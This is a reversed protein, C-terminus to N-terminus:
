TQSLQSFDLPSSADDCLQSLLGPWAYRSCQGLDVLTAYTSVLFHGLDTKCILLNVRCPGSSRRCRFSSARRWGRFILGEVQSMCDRRLEVTPKPVCQGAGTFLAFCRSPETERSKGTYSRHCLVENM